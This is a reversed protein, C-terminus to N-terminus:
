NDIKAKTEQAKVTVGTFDNSPSISIKEQATEPFNRTQPRRNLGKIRKLNIQPCLTLNKLIGNLEEPRPSETERAGNTSSM